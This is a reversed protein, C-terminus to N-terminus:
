RGAASVKIPLAVTATKGTVRDTAKLEATFSGERNLPILYRFQIPADDTAEQPVAAEVAKALTPRRTEDSVRLEVVANPKKDAGRGFGVLLFHVFLTQGVM